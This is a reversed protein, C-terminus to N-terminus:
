QPVVVCSGILIPPSAEETRSRVPGRGEPESGQLQPHSDLKHRLRLIEDEYQQKMVVHAEQLQKLSLQIREMELIKVRVRCSDIPLVLGLTPPLARPRSEDMELGVLEIRETSGLVMVRTSDSPVM